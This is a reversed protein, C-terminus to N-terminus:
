QAPRKGGCGGPCDETAIEVSIVPREEIKAGPVVASSFPSELRNAHAAHDVGSFLKVYSHSDMKAIHARADAESGARVQVTVDLGKHSTKVNFVPM